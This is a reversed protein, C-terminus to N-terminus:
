REHQKIKNRIWGIMKKGVIKEVLAKFKDNVTQDNLNSVMEYEVKDNPYAIYYLREDYANLVRVTGNIGFMFADPRETFAYHEMREALMSVAFKPLTNLYDMYEQRGFPSGFGILHCERGELLWLEKKESVMVFNYGPISDVALSYHGCDEVFLSVPDEPSSGPIDNQKEPLEIGEEKKDEKKDEFVTFYQLREMNM